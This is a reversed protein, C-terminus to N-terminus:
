LISGLARRANAFYDFVGLELSRCECHVILLACPRKPLNPSIRAKQPPDLFRAFAQPYSAAHAQFIQSTDTVRGRWALHSSVDESFRAYGSHLSAFDPFAVCNCIVYLDYSLLQFTGGSKNQNTEL